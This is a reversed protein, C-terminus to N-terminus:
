YQIFGRYTSPSSVALNKLATSVACSSYNLTLNGQVGAGNVDLDANQAVVGGTITADGNAKGFDGRLLILGNWISGANLEMDGNILLVGQGYAHLKVSGHTGGAGLPINVYVIPFYNECANAPSGRLPDGWNTTDTKVCTGTGAPNPNATITAGDAANYIVNAQAALQYFMTDLVNKLNSVSTDGGVMEPVGTGTVINSAKQVNTTDTSNTRVGPVASGTSCGTWGTPVHDNGDIVASGKVVPTGVVTAGAQLNLEPIYRKVLMALTRAAVVNGNVEYTGYSRLLFMFRNLQTVSDQYYSGTSGIQTKTGAASGGNSLGSALALVNPYGMMLGAQAAETARAGSMTNEGSKVEVRATFFVGAVLAGIVVLAFLATPLAIGRRDRPLAHIMSM